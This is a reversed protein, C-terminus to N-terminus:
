PRGRDRRLDPRRQGSPPRLSPRDLHHLGRARARGSRDLGVPLGSGRRPRSWLPYLTTLWTFLSGNVAPRYARTLNQYIHHHTNILGPTVLCDDARLVTAATPPADGPGGVATVLGGAVAVWGGRIERDDGDMTAVLDAGVVLLDEM